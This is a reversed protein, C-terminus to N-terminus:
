IDISINNKEFSDAAPIEYHRHNNDKEDDSSNNSKTNEVPYSLPLRRVDGMTRINEVNDSRRLDSDKQNNTDKIESIDLEDLSMPQQKEHAVDVDVLDDIPDDINFDFDDFLHDYHHQAPSRYPSSSTSPVVHGNLHKQEDDESAKGFLFELSSGRTKTIPSTGATKTTEGLDTVTEDTIISKRLSKRFAKKTPRRTSQQHGKMFHPLEILGKSGRDGGEREIKGPSEPGGGSGSTLNRFFEKASDVRPIFRKSPSSISSEPSNLINHPPPRRDPSPIPISSSSGFHRFLELSRTRFKRALEITHIKRPVIKGAERLDSLELEGRDHPDLEYFKTKLDEIREQDVLGLRILELFIYEGLVLTESGEGSLISAAYLFQVDEIPRSMIQDERQQAVEAFFRRAWQSITIAYIPVGALLYLGMLTGRYTGMNCNSGDDDTSNICPATQLGGSSCSTVAWYLSTIFTWNEIFLGWCTGLIMWCFFIITMISRFRNAYWGIFYKFHYWCYRWVSLVTVADDVEDRYSIANIRHEAPVLHLNPAFLSVLFLGTTGSVISSAVFVFFITFIKSMDSNEAPKCFGISLGAEIVYYFSTAVTWFYFYYYFIIGVSIWISVVLLCLLYPNALLLEESVTKIDGFLMGFQWWSEEEESKKEVPPHMPESVHRFEEPIESADHIISSGAKKRFQIVNPSVSSKDGVEIM